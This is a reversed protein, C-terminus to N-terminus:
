LLMEWCWVTFSCLRDTSCITQMEAQVFHERLM